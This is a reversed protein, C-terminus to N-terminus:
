EKLVMDSCMVAAMILQRANNDPPVNRDIELVYTDASTFLEKGLGAWKKTVRALQLDGSAFTFDWGSWKGKLTCIPHENEDLVHFAGGLSFLKQKFGGIYEDKEDLVKVKSLLLTARRTVRLVPEGQPTRIQIDFPTNRKYDTFRLIKTLFGLREERCHLVVQGSEADHIDYNNAAKFFGLHEKVVYLNKNLIPHM